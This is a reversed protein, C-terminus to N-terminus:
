SKWRNNGTAILKARDNLLATLVDQVKPPLAGRHSSAMEKNAAVRRMEQWIFLLLGSAPLLLRMQMMSHNASKAVQSTTKGCTCGNTYALYLESNPTKAMYIRGKPTYEMKLGEVEAITRAKIAKQYTSTDGKAGFKALNDRKHRSCLFRKASKYHKNCAGLFGKDGDTHQAM